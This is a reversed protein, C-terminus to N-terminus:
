QTQQEQEIEEKEEETLYGADVMKKLVSDQRKEALDLHKNIAYSSPANPIGALLTAEYDTMDIPDKGFYGQCADYVGYYGNGYYNTNYYIELIEEKSFEEEIDKAVFAEAIKRYFNKNQTFYENKAIQQTITSGGETFDRTIFDVVVARGISIIDIGKHQYFRRDEVAIIADLFIQPVEDTECFNEDKIIKSFKEDIPEKEIANKYMNYGRIGAYGCISFIVIIIAIIITLIIKKFKKM